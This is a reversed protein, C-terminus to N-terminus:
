REYIQVDHLYFYEDDYRLISEYDGVVRNGYSNEYEVEGKISCLDEECLVAEKRYKPFKLSDPVPFKEKLLEQNIRYAEEEVSENCGSLFSVCLMIVTLKKIM